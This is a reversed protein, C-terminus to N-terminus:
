KADEAQGNDQLAKRRWAEAADVANQWAEPDEFLAFSKQRHLLNLYVMADRYAPRLALAKELYRIGQEALSVREPGVIDDANFLPPLKISGEPAQPDPRPDFAAKDSGGGEQLLLNFILVGVAYQAEADNAQLDARRTTSSLAERWKGWRSYVQILGNIAAVDGPSQQLQRRYIEELVPYRDADFLTQLYLSEARPDAPSRQEFEQFAALACDVARQNEPSEAGPVMLQRCVLGRNLAVVALKPYLQEAHEYERLAADYNGEAYLRNGQRAHHRARLESCGVLLAAMWCCLLSARVQRSRAQVCWLLWRV